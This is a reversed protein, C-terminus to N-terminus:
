VQVVATVSGDPEAADYIARAQDGDLISRGRWAPVASRPM